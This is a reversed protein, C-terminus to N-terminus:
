INRYDDPATALPLRAGLTDLLRRPDTDIELLEHQASTVFGHAQAARMM